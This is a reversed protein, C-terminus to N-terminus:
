VFTKHSNGVHCCLFFNMEIYTGVTQFTCGLMNAETNTTTQSKMFLM